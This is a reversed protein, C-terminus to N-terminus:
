PRVEVRGSMGPHITCDYTFGGIVDFRRSVQVNSVINIDAPAGAQPVFIVNHPRAGFRWTVTGGVKIQALIPVFVDGPMDVFLSLPFGASDVTLTLSRAVRQTGSTLEVTFSTTEQVVPTGSITGTASFTLGLPLRGATLAWTNGGVGGSSELSAAYSDGVKALPLTATVIVLPAPNVTIGLAREATQTGLSARVIFGFRGLASANGTIVGGPSLNLGPPLAGSSLSWTVGAGENVDLVQSYSAGLTAAALATTIIAFPPPDVALAFDATADRRGSTARVRFTRTELEIPRGSLRGVASLSLGVPLVGAAVSWSLTGDGGTATLLLDYDVGRTAPPLTRSTTIVVPPPASSDRALCGAAACVLFLCTLRM